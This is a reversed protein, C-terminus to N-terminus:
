SLRKHGKLKIVLGRLRLPDIASITLVNHCWRQDIPLFCRILKPFILVGGVILSADKLLIAGDLFLWKYSNPWRTVITSRVDCFIICSKTNTILIDVLLLRIFVAWILVGLLLRYGQIVRTKVAQFRHMKLGIYRGITQIAAHLGSNNLSFFARSSVIFSLRFVLGENKTLWNPTCIYRFFSFPLKHLGNLLQSWRINISSLIWSLDVCLLAIFAVLLIFKIDNLSCNLLM